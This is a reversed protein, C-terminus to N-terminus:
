PKGLILELLETNMEIRYSNLAVTGTNINNVLIFMKYIYIYHNNINDSEKLILQKSTLYM